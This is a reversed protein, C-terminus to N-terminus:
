MGEVLRADLSVVVKCIGYAMLIPVLFNALIQYLLVVGPRPLVFHYHPLEQCKSVGGHLLSVTRSRTPM